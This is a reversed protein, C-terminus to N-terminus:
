DLPIVETDGFTVDVHHALLAAGGTRLAADSSQVHEWDWAKPESKETPWIKFNYQTVSAGDSTDPLTKCSFRIRHTTNLDIPYLGYNTTKDGIGPYFQKHAAQEPKGKDWWLFGIAGFPQYGFKPQGAPFHRPGGTVHGTFRLIVGVGNGGSLPTTEESVGHLTISTRVQYDKWTKDGILFVRDYGLQETRLGGEEIVWKDDVLQGVDTADDVTSWQIKYPLPSSGEERIVTITKEAAEGQRNTARIAITNEGLKLRGLPVDANFDGDVALRRYARFSLPVPFSGNIRYTLDVLDDPDSVHGLVNFDDQAVGLHGVRQTKGYWIDIQPPEARALLSAKLLVAVSFLFKSSTM